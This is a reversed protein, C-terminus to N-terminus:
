RSLPAQRRQARAESSVPAALPLCSGVARLGAGRATSMSMQNRSVLRAASRGAIESQVLHVLGAQLSQLEPSQRGEGVGIVAITAPAVAQATAAVGCLALVVLVVSLAYQTMTHRLM